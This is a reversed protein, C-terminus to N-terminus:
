LERRRKIFEKILKTIILQNLTTRGITRKNEGSISTRNGNTRDCAKVPLFTINFLYIKEIKKLDPLGKCM